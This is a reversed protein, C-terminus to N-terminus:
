RRFLTRLAGGAVTGVLLVGGWVWYLPNAWSDVPTAWVGGGFLALGGIILWAPHGQAQLAEKETGSAIIFFSFRPKRIAVDPAPAERSQGALDEKLVEEQVKNRASDWEEQQIVGDKNADTAARRAPDKLLARLRETVNKRMRDVFSNLKAAEGLVYTEADALIAWEQVHYRKRTFISGTRWPVGNMDCFKAVDGPPQVGPHVTIDTLVVGHMEAKDPMVMMRGTEDELHFPERIERDIVRHSRTRGKSSESIETVTVRAWVCPLGRVPSPRPGEAAVSRARGRLEALGMACSRVKSTPMSTIIWRRRLARWGWLYLGVGGGMMMLGLEATKQGLETNITIPM